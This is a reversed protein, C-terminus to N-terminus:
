KNLKGNVLILYKLQKLNRIIQVFQNQLNRLNHNSEETIVSYETVKIEVAEISVVCMSCFPPRTFFHLFFQIKKLGDNMANLICTWRSLFSIYFTKESLKWAHSQRLTHTTQIPLRVLKNRNLIINLIFITKKTFIVFVFDKMVLFFFMLTM